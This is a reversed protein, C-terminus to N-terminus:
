GISDLYERLIRVVLGFVSGHESDDVHQFRGVARRLNSEDGEDFLRQFELVQQRAFDLAETRKKLTRYYDVAEALRDGIAREHGEEFNM